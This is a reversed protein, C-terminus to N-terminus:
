KVKKWDKGAAITALQKEMKEKAENLAKSVQETSPDELMDPYEKLLIKIAKAVAKTFEVAYENSSNTNGGLKREKKWNLLAKCQEGSAHIKLGSYKTRRETKLDWNM